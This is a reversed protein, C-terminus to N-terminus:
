ETQLFLFSQFYRSGVRSERMLVSMDDTLRADEDTYRVRECRFTRQRFDRATNCHTRFTELCDLYRTRLATPGGNHCEHVRTLFDDARDRPFPYIPM